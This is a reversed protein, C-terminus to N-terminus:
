GLNFDFYIPFNIYFLSSSFVVVIFLIFFLIYKYISGCVDEM